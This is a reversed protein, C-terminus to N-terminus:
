RSDVSKGGASLLCERIAELRSELTADVEGFKTRVHCGGQHIAPDPAVSVDKLAQISTFFDEKVTEIYEYDRPNVSIQVHVPEPVVRLAEIIARKVMEQDIAAQGYVVKEVARSLLEVLRSEHTEILNTWASEIQAMIQTLREIMEGAQRRGEEFGAAEGKAFAEEHARRRVEDLEVSKEPDSLIGPKKKALAEAKERSIFSAVFEDQGAQEKSSYLTKFGEAAPTSAGTKDKGDGSHWSSASFSNKDTSNSL